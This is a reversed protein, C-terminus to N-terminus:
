PAGRRDDVAPDLDRLPGIRNRAVALDQDANAGGPDVAGVEALAGAAVRRRRARGVHRPELTGALHVSPPHHREQGAAALGLKRDRVLRV